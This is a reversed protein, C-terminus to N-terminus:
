QLLKKAQKMQGENMFDEMSEGMIRPTGKWLRVPLELFIGKYGSCGEDCTCKIVGVFTYDKGPIKDGNREGIYTYKNGVIMCDGEEESFYAVNM